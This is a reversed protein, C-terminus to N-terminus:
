GQIVFMLSVWRPQVVRMIVGAIARRSNCGFCCSINGMYGFICAESTSFRAQAHVQESTGCLRCCLMLKFPDPTHLENPPVEEGRDIVTMGNSVITRRKRIMRGDKSFEAM